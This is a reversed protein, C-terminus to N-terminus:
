STGEANIAIIENYDISGIAHVRVVEIFLSQAGLPGKCLSTPAGCVGPRRHGHHAQHRYWHAPSNPAGRLYEKMAAKHDGQLLAIDGLLLRVGINDMPCWALM